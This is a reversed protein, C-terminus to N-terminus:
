LHIKGPYLASLQEGTSSYKRPNKVKAQRMAAMSRLLCVLQAAALLIIDHVKKRRDIWDSRTRRPQNNM